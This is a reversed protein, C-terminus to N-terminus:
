TQRTDFDRMVGEGGYLEFVQADAKPVPVVDPTLVKHAGNGNERYRNLVNQLHTGYKDSAGAGVGGTVVVLDAGNMVGLVNAMRAGQEGVEKWAPHDAPLEQPNKGHRRTLAPGSINNEFTDAPDSSLTIHGIEAPNRRDARAVNGYDQDRDVIGAGVGTGLILAATRDYGYEGIKHAAAQAALEGDNVAVLKFGDQILRDTAPDAAALEDELNYTHQSLGPVNAIPGVQKGDPSVIGPIGAVLWSNGEDAAKLVQRAMWGFFEKPHEPTAISSFDKIDGKDSTGVRANTGGLGIVVGPDINIKELM